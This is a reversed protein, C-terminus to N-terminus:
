ITPCLKTSSNLRAHRLKALAVATIREVHKRSVGCVEAIEQAQWGPGVLKGDCTKRWSPNNGPLPFMALIDLGHDLRENATMPKGSKREIVRRSRFALNEIISLM